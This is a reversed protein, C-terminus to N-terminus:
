SSIAVFFWVFGVQHSKSEALDVGKAKQMKLVAVCFIELSISEQKKGRNELLMRKLTGEM